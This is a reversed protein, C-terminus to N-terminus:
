LVTTLLSTDTAMAVCFIRNWSARDRRPDPDLAVGVLPTAPPSKAGERGLGREWEMVDCLEGSTDELVDAEFVGFLM